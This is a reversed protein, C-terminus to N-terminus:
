SPPELTQLQRTATDRAAKILDGGARIRDSKIAFQEGSASTGSFSLIQFETSDKRQYDLLATTCTFQPQAVQNFAAKIDAIGMM